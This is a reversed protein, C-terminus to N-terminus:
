YGLDIPDAKAEDQAVRLEGVLINHQSMMQGLVSEVNKLAEGVKQARTHNPAGAYVKDLVTKVEHLDQDVQNLLDIVHQVTRDLSQIEEVESAM